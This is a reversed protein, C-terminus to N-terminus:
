LHDWARQYRRGENEILNWYSYKVISKEKLDKSQCLLCCCSTTSFAKLSHFGYLKRPSHLRTISIVVECSSAAPWEWYRWCNVVEELHYGSWIICDAQLTLCSRHNRPLDFGLGVLKLAQFCRYTKSDERHALPCALPALYCCISDRKKSALWGTM